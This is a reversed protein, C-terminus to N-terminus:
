YRYGNSNDQYLYVGNAIDFKAIIGSQNDGSINLKFADKPDLVSGFCLIGFFLFIYLLKKM